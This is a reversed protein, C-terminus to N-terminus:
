YSKVSVVSNSVLNEFKIHTKGTIPRWSGIYVIDSDEEEVTMIRNRKIGDGVPVHANTSDDGQDMKRKGKRSTSSIDQGANVIESSTNSAPATVLDRDGGESSQQVENIRPTM